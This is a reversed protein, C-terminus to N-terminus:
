PVVFARYFATTGFVPLGQWHVMGNTADATVPGGVNSWVGGLSTTSQLQYNRSPLGVLDLDTGQSSIQISLNGITGGGALVTELNVIGLATQGYQDRIQYAFGDTVGPDPVPSTYSVVDNSVSVQGGSSTISSPLGDFSVGPSDNTLLQAVPFSIGQGYIRALRDLNAIPADAVMLSLTTLTALFNTDVAEVVISYPGGQPQANSFTLLGTQPNAALGGSYGGTGVVAVHDLAGSATLLSPPVTITGGPAVFLRAAYVLSPPNVVKVTPGSGTSYVQDWNVRLITNPVGGPSFFAFSWDVRAFLLTISEVPEQNSDMIWKLSALAATTLVGHYFPAQYNGTVGAQRLALDVTYTLGSACGKFLAPTSADLQKFFTVGTFGAKSTGATGSGIVLGNTIGDSLGNIAIWGGSGPFQADHSSGALPVSSNSPIFRIFGSDVPQGWALGQCALLLVAWILQTFIRM